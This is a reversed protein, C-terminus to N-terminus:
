YKTLAKPDKKVLYKICLNQTNLINELVGVAQCFNIERRAKRGIEREQEKEGSSGVIEVGKKSQIKNQNKVKQSEIEPHQEM